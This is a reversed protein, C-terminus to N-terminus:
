RRLDRTLLKLKGPAVPVPPPPPAAIDVLGDFLRATLARYVGMTRELRWEAVFPWAYFSFALILVSGLFTRQLRRRATGSFLRVLFDVLDM